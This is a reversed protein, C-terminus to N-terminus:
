FVNKVTKTNWIHIYTHTLVFHMLQNQIFYFYVNCVNKTKFAQM